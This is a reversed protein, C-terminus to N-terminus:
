NMPFVNRNGITTQKVKSFFINDTDNKLYSGEFFNFYISPTVCISMLFFVIAMHKMYDLYLYIGIGYKSMKKNEV